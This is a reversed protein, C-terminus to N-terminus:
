KDKEDNYILAEAIRLAAIEGQKKPLEEPTISELSTRREVIARELRDGIIFRVIRDTLMRHRALRVEEPTVNLAACVRNTLSSENM